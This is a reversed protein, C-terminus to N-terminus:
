KFKGALFQKKCWQRFLMDDQMVSQQSMHSRGGGSPTQLHMAEATTHVGITYGAMLAKLSFFSEERFGYRSLNDPYRLKNIESKYLACSRFHGARLITSEIYGFGCDDGFILLNGQPDFAVKNIMDGLFSVERRMVPFMMQPTTGSAIDYGAEIVDLLKHIYDPNLIVDDDLRMSYEGTGYKLQWENLQNRAYCIGFDAANRLVIIRHGEQRLRKTMSNFLYNEMLPTRSANDCIIANWQYHCYKETTQTRLSQLLLCIESPRDKTSILIDIEKM